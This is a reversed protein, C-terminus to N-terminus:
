QFGTDSGQKRIKESDRVKIMAKGWANLGELMLSGVVDQPTSHYQCNYREADHGNWPLFSTPMKTCGQPRTTPLPM